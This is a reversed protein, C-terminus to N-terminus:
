AVDQQAVPVLEPILRLDLQAGLAQDAGFTQNPRPQRVAADDRGAGEQGAGFLLLHQRQGLADDDRRQAVELVARHV